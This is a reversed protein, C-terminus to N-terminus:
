WYGENRSAHAVAVGRIDEGAVRYFLLYPFRRMRYCHPGFRIPYAQPSAVISALARSLEASFENGFRSRQDEYWEAARVAERDAARHFM